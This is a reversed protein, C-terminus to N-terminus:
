CVIEKIFTKYDSYTLLRYHWDKPNEELTKIGYGKITKVITIFPGNKLENSLFDNISYEKYVYKELVSNVSKSNFLQCNNSDIIFNIPLNLKFSLDIASLTSELFVDGDSLLCICQNKHISYGVSFGAALGLQQQCYKVNFSSNNFFDKTLIKYEKNKIFFNKINEDIFWAQIGFSKGIIIPTKNDKLKLVIPLISLVSPIHGLKYIYSNYLLDIIYQKYNELM